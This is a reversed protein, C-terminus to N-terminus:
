IANTCPHTNHNFEHLTQLVLQFSIKCVIKERKLGPNLKCKEFSVHTSQINQTNTHQERTSGYLGTVMQIHKFMGQPLLLYQTDKINLQTLVTHDGEACATTKM